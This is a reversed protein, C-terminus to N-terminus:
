GSVGDGAEPNVGYDEGDKVDPLSDKKESYTKGQGGSYGIPALLFKNRFNASINALTAPTFSVPSLSNVPSLSM